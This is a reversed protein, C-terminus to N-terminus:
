KGKLWIGAASLVAGAAAVEAADRTKRAIETQLLSQELIQQSNEELKRRHLHTEYISTVEKWSDARKNGLYELMKSLAYVSQYESPIFLLAKFGNKAEELKKKLSPLKMENEFLNKRYKSTDDYSFLPILAFYTKTFSVIFYIFDIFILSLPLPHENFDIPKCLVLIAFILGMCGMSILLNKSWFKISKNAEKAIRIDYECLTISRQCNSYKALEDKATKLLLFLKDRKITSLDYDMATLISFM